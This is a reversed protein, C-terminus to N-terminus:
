NFMRAMQRMSNYQSQSVQGTNMLYQIIDDYSNFNMGQPINYKKSLIPMPNQLVQQYKQALMQRNIM